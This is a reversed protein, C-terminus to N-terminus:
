ISYRPRREGEPRSRGSMEEMWTLLRQGMRRCRPSPLPRFILQVSSKIQLGDSLMTEIQLHRLFSVLFGTVGSQSFSPSPGPRIKHYLLKAVLPPLATYM